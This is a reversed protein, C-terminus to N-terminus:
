SIDAEDVNSWLQGKLVWRLSDSVAPEFVIAPVRNGGGSDYATATLTTFINAGGANGTQDLNALNIIYDGTSDYKWYAIFKVMGTNTITSDENAASLTFEGSLVSHPLGNIDHQKPFFIFYQAVTSSTVREYHYDFIAGAM